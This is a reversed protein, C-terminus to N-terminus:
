RACAHARLLAASRLPLDRGARADEGERCLPRSPDRRGAARPQDKGLPQPARARRRSRGPHRRHEPCRPGRELGKRVELLPNYRASRPDTPNFLLCYSFRSRWGATLQWNEGKIDHVVASGTWTLLTPIVLGVGKGSRTPAFAMVHEPGDHRLYREKLRGLFVGHSRFLGARAIERTTAWRSSGYTTAARHQRARWLSGVIAFGCGVVGSSAAIIAATISSDDACLRRVRVVVRLLALPLLGALRLADFWPAGLQPQYGLQAATWQTAVWLGGIVVAFVVLIQVVLVKTPTM